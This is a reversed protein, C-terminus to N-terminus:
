KMARQLSATVMSQTSRERGGRSTMPQLATETGCRKGRAERCEQLVAILHPIGYTTIELCKPRAPEAARVPLTRAVHTQAPKLMALGALAWARLSAARKTTRTTESAMAARRVEVLAHRWLEAMRATLDAPLVVLTPLRRRDAVSQLALDGQAADNWLDACTRTLLRWYSNRGNPRQKPM